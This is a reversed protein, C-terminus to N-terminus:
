EEIFPAKQRINGTTGSKNCCWGNHAELLGHTNRFFRAPNSSCNDLRARCPARAAVVTDTAEPRSRESGM